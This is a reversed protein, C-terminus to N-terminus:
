FGVQESTGLAFQIDLRQRPTIPPLVGSELLCKHLTTALRPARIRECNARPALPINQFKNKLLAQAAM